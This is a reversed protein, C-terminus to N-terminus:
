RLISTILMKEELMAFKQGICNRPGASFPVYAYMNRGESEENSFRRGRGVPRGGVPPGPQGLGAGHGSRCRAASACREPRFEGVDAGWIAPDYHVAVILVVVQVGRPVVQGEIVVDAGVCRGRGGGTGCPETLSAFRAPRKALARGEDLVRAILPVSPFMRLAEKIVMEVYHLEHLDEFRRFPVALPVRCSQGSTLCARTPPVCVPACAGGACTPVRRDGLVRDIEEQMKRQVDPRLSIQTFTWAVGASTQM